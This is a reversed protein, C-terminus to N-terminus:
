LLSGKKRSKQLCFLEELSEDQRQPSRPPKLVQAVESRCKINKQMPRRGLAMETVILIERDKGEKSLVNAAVIADNKGLKM